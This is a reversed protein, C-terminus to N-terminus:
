LTFDGWYENFHEEANNNKFILYVKRILDERTKGNLDAEFDDIEHLNVNFLKQAEIDSHFIDEICLFKSYTEFIRRLPGLMLNVKHEEYLWKLDSWLAQYSSKFDDECDKIQKYVTKNGTKLLHFTSKNRAKKEWWRYRTNLYFHINHTLIFLQQSSKLNKLLKQLMSIILYQVTDDNSNMPDDFIIIEEKIGSSIKELTYNFWLFAIINKEGTSLTNIDRLKENYGIIQYQGKQNNSDYKRLTFSQNGLAMLHQNIHEAALEENITKKKLQQIETQIKLVEDQKENFIEKIDLFEKEINEYENYIDHYNESELHHYVEHYLLNYKATRKKYELNESYLYNENYISDFKEQAESFDFLCDFSMAPKYVFINDQRYVLARRIRELMEKLQLKTEIIIENLKEVKPILESFFNNIPIKEVRDVQESEQRVKELTLKISEELEKVHDNFYHNLDNMRSEALPNGCFLCFEADNHFQIGDRVWKEQSSSEFKMTVTKVLNQTAIENTDKILNALDIKPFQIKSGMNVEEQRFIAREKSVEESNLKHAFCIDRKFHNKFYNSGSIEPITNKINRAANQHISDIRDEIQKLNNKKEELISYTNNANEVLTIEYSLNKLKTEKEEILPQLAVNEVGLSIINLGGHERVIRDFGQFIKVEYKESYQKVIEETISSKGTGNKGFIFNKQEFGEISNQEFINTPLNLSKIMLMGWNDLGNIM